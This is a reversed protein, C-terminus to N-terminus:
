FCLGCLIFVFPDVQISVFPSPVNTLQCMSRNQMTWFIYSAWHEINMHAVKWQNLLIFNTCYICVSGYIYCYDVMVFIEGLLFEVPLTTYSLSHIIFELITITQLIAFWINSPYIIVQCPLHKLPVNGLIGHKILKIIEHSMIWHYTFYILIEDESDLKYEEKQPYCFCIICIFVSIM